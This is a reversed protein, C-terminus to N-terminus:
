QPVLTLPAILSSFYIHLLLNGLSPCTQQRLFHGDREVSKHPAMAQRARRDALGCTPRLAVSSRCRTPGSRTIGTMPPWAEPSSTRRLRSTGASHAIGWSRMHHPVSVVLARETLKKFRDRLTSAPVRKFRSLDEVTVQPTRM